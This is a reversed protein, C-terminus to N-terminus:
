HLSIIVSNKLNTRGESHTLLELDDILLHGDLGLIVIGACASVFIRFGEGRLAVVKDSFM